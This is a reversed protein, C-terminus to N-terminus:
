YTKTSEKKRDRGERFNQMREGVDTNSHPPSPFKASTKSQM